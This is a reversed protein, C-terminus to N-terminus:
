FEIIIENGDWCIEKEQKDKPTQLILKMQKPFGFNNKDLSIKLAKIDDKWQFSVISYIGNEYSYDMGNDLYLEFSGDSGGYIYVEDCTGQEELSLPIISGARVFVPLTDVGADVKIEKGGEYFTGNEESYWDAGTPLYVAVSTDGHIPTSEADYEMPRTIPCVLYAPGYMFQSALEKVKSDEAFDFMLSRMITYDENYVKWALSYSYPLM